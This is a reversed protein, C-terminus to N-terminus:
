VNSTTNVRGTLEHNKEACGARAPMRVCSRLQFAGGSTKNALPKQLILCTQVIEKAEDVRHGPTGNNAQARTQPRMAIAAAARARHHVATTHVVAESREYAVPQM